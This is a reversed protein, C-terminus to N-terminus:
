AHAPGMLWVPRHGPSRMWEGLPHKQVGESPKLNCEYVVNDLLLGMHDVTGFTRDAAELCYLRDPHRVHARVQAETELKGIIPYRYRENALHNFFGSDAIRAQFPLGHVNGQAWVSMMLNAYLTCNLAMPDQLPFEYKHTESTLTVVAWTPFDKLGWVVRKFNFGAERKELYAQVDEFASRGRLWGGGTRILVGATYALEFLVPDGPDLHNRHQGLTQLTEEVLFLSRDKKILSERFAHLADAMKKSWHGDIQIPKKTLYLLQQVRRVDLGHMQGGQGIRHSIISLTAAM